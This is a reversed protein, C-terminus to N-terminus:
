WWGHIWRPSEYHPMSRTWAWSGLAYSMFDGYAVVLVLVFEAGANMRTTLRLRRPVMIQLGGDLRVRAASIVNHYARDPVHQKQVPSAPSARGEVRRETMGGIVFTVHLRISWKDSRYVSAAVM